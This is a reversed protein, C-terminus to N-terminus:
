EQLSVTLTVTSGAIHLSQVAYSWPPGSPRLIRFTLDPQSLKFADGSVVTATVTATMGEGTFTYSALRAATHYSWRIEADPGTIRLGSQHM